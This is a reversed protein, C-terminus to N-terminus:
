GSILGGEEPFEVFEVGEVEGTGKGGSMKVKIEERNGISVGCAAM